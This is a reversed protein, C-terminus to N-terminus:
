KFSVVTGEDLGNSINLQFEDKSNVDIIKTATNKFIFTGKHSRDLNSIFVTKNSEIKDKVEGTTKNKFFYIIKLLTRESPKKELWLYKNIVQIDHELWANTILINYSDNYYVERPVPNLTKIFLGKITSEEPTLTKSYSAGKYLMEIYVVRAFLAVILMVLIGLIIFKKM